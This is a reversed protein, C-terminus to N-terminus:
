YRNARRLQDIVSPSVPIKEHLKELRKLLSTRDFLVNPRLLIEGGPTIEAEITDGETLGASKLCDVPLRVALSNGWRSIQLKM